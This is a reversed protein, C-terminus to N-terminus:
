VAETGGALNLSYLRETDPLIHTSKRLVGESLIEAQSTCTSAASIEPPVGSVLVLFYFHYQRCHFM